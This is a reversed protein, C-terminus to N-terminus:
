YSPLAERKAQQTSSLIALSVKKEEYDTNVRWLLIYFDEIQMYLSYELDHGVLAGYSHGVICHWRHGYKLDLERKIYQAIATQDRLKQVYFAHAACDVCDQQIDWSMASDKIIIEKGAM